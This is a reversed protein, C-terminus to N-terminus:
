KQIIIGSSTNCGPKIEQYELYETCTLLPARKMTIVWPGLSVAGDLCLKGVVSAPFISYSSIYQSQFAMTWFHCMDNWTMLWQGSWTVAGYTIKLPALPTHHWWINPLFITLLIQKYRTLPPLSFYRPHHPPWTFTNFGTQVWPIGAYTSVLSHTHTHTHSAFQINIGMDGSLLPPENHLLIEM